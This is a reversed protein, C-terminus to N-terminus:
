KQNIFKYLDTIISDLQENNEILEQYSYNGNVVFECLKTKYSSKLTGSNDKFKKDFIAGPTEDVVLLKHEKSDSLGLFIAGVFIGAMLLPGLFTMVVFSKKKVRILYERQIILGIKSM